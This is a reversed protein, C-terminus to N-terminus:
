SSVEDPSACPASESSPQGDKPESIEENPKISMALLSPSLLLRNATLFYVSRTGLTVVHALLSRPLTSVANHTSTRRLISPSVHTDRFGADHLMRSITSKDFSYLHFVTEDMSRLIPVIRGIGTLIRRTPVHFASNPSRIVIAGGPRLLRYLHSLTKMPDTLHALVNWLTVVDFSENAFSAHEVVNSSLHIGLEREAFKRFQMSPEVGTCNWGAEKCAAAFFGYGAGVDLINGTKKFRFLTEIHSRFVRKRGEAWDPTFHPHEKSSYEELIAQETKRINRYVLGCHSCRVIGKEGLESLVTDPFLLVSDASDCINCRPLEILSASM